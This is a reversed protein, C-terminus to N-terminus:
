YHIILIMSAFPTADTYVDDDDNAVIQLHKKLEETEEEMKQKKA